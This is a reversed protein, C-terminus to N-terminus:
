HLSQRIHRFFQRIADNNWEIVSEQLHFNIAVIDHTDRARLIAREEGALAHHRFRLLSDFGVPRQLGFIALGNKGGGPEVTVLYDALVVSDSLLELARRSRGEPLEPSTELLRKAEAVMNRLAKLDQRKAM